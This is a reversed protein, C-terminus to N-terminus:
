QLRVHSLPDFSHGLLNQDATKGGSPRLARHSAAFHTDGPHSCTPWLVRSFYNPDHFKTILKPQNENRNKALANMVDICLRLRPHPTLGLTTLTVEM